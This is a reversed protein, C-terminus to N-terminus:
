LAFTRAWYRGPELSAAVERADAKHITNVESEYVIM